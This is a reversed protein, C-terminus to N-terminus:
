GDDQDDNQTYPKSQKYLELREHFESLMVEAQFQQALTIAKEVNTVAKDFQGTAAYAAALTDLVAANREETLDTARHALALAKAPDQIAPDPSTALIWALSNLVAPHNPLLQIAQQLPKM